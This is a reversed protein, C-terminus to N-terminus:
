AHFIEIGNCSISTVQYPDIVALHDLDKTGIAYIATERDGNSSISNAHAFYETGDEMTVVLSPYKELSLIPIRSQSDEEPDSSGVMAMEMSYPQIKISEITKNRYPQHAIERIAREMHRYNLKFSVEYELPVQEVTALVMKGDHEQLIENEKFEIDYVSGKRESEDANLYDQWEEYTGIEKEIHFVYMLSDEVTLTQGIITYDLNEYYIYAKLTKSDVMEYATGSGGNGIGEPKGADLIQNLLPKTCTVNAHNSQNTFADDFQETFATGDKKTITLVAMASRDDGTVGEFEVNLTDSSIQAKGASYLGDIAEGAIMQGFASNFSGTAAATTGVAAVALAAAILLVTLKKGTHKKSAKMGTMELAGRKIKEIDIDPAYLSAEEIRDFSETLTEMEDFVQYVNKKM